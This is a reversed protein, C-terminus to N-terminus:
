RHFYKKNELIPFTVLKSGQEEGRFLPFFYTPVKKTVNELAYKILSLSFIREKIKDIFM